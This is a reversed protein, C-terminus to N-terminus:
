HLFVAHTAVLSWQLSIDYVGLRNHHQMQFMAGSWKYKLLYTITSKFGLLCRPWATSHGWLGFLFTM